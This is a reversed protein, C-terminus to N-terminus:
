AIKLYQQFFFGKTPRYGQIEKINQALKIKPDYLPNMNRLGKPDIFSLYQMDDKIIWLMFDPYFASESFFGVGTKSQNRLLYFGTLKYKEINKSLYTQLDIVFKNEGENLPVPSIKVDSVNKSQFILPCYLHENATFIELNQQHLTIQKCLEDINEFQTQYIPNDAPIEVTYESIFNPHNCDLDACQIHDMEWTKKTHTYYEQVYKKCLMLVADYVKQLDKFSQIAFYNQPAYIEYWNIYRLAKELDEKKILLNFYKKERKYSLIELYLKDLDLLDMFKNPLPIPQQVFAVGNINQTVSSLVNVKSFLDIVIKKNTLVGIFNEKIEFSPHEKKFEVDKNITLTKLQPQKTKCDFKKISTKITRRIPESTKVEENELYTKFTAMYNANLGFINLTEVSRLNADLAKGYATSRKLSMNQGKLRVGRGFLQIIQSGESQGMNLLGMSSVRWSNWGETFKKSGILMSLNSNKNNIGEFLSTNFNDDSVILGKERCLTILKADDGVNIVGFYAGNGVKLGIEGSASKLNSLELTSGSSLFIAQKVDNLINDVNLKKLYEFKGAFIDDQGLGSQANLINNIANQTKSDANELFRKIFLLVDVVDSSQTAGSGKVANVSSGVWVMFPKHINYNQLKIGENNFIKMQQYCSLLAGVLYVFNNNNERDQLNLILYDKGYGDNYFYKYSYDFLVSKAYENTLSKKLNNGASNIAQGFTASYEFSFGDKSLTDRSKKWVEGGSGRHGEDILVLNNEGFSEVAVKAVEEKEGLKTIELIEVKNAGFDFGGSNKVFIEADIKSEKLEVLHQSSLAVNPTILLTKNYSYNHKESYYEFQRINIHMLFTKGSGTANWFALKNLEELKFDELHKNDKISEENFKVLFKNLEELLAKKDEFYKDLYIETFLLSLYQFYKWKIGRATSKTHRIINEDYEFLKTKGLTFRNILQMAFKSQNEENIEELKENKLEITLEELKSAGLLSLLWSFLVLKHQFKLPKAAIQTNKAKAM